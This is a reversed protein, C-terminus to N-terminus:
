LDMRQMMTEVIAFAAPCIAVNKLTLDTIQHFKRRDTHPYERCARPRVSYIGCHNDPGLFPCPVQQLVLDGDEDRRLYESIFRGPKMRLHKAIRELDSPTFLPGTTKCCNACELCNSRAFESEHLEQMTYDLDKPPRKKLKGFFERHAKRKRAAAGPLQHLREKM